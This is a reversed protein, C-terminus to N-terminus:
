ENDSVVLYVGVLIILAGVIMKITIKENFLLSGWIMGWIVVVSKNAFATTLTMTKIIQQWIIAYFFLIIVALGYFINFRLSLFDSVAATKSFLSSFSYLLLIVHLFILNRVNNKKM